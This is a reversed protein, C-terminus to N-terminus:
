LTRRTANEAASFTCHLVCHDAGTLMCSTQHIVVTQGYHTAAGATFGEALACLKRHSRYQLLLVDEGLEEFGFVPVDAGPYLKRVEPHIIDNLTLLFPRTATHPAFFAPYRRALLPMAGEGIRRVVASSEMGLRAAAADVLAFLQEDPYNGLSTFAGDVDADELLQDWTDAGYDDTVVQEALNFIVGKM